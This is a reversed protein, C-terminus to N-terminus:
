SPQRTYGPCGVVPLRPYKPFTADSASLQCLYFSSQRASEVRRAHACDACLGVVRRERAREELDDVM